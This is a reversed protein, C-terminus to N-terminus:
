RVCRYVNPENVGGQSNAIRGWSYKACDGNGMAPVGLNLVGSPDWGQTPSGATTVWEWGDTMNALGLTGASDCAMKWETAAPLRKGDVACGQRADEWQASTREAKELCYGLDGGGVSIFVETASDCFNIHPQYLGSNRALGKWMDQGVAVARNRKFACCCYPM